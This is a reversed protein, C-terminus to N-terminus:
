ILRVSMVLKGKGDSIPVIDCHDLDIRGKYSFVHRKLLEQFYFKFKDLM